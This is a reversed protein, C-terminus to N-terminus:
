VDQFSNLHELGKPSSPDYIVGAYFGLVDFTNSALSTAVATTFCDPGLLNFRKRYGESIM